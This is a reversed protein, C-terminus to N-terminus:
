FHVPSPIDDEDMGTNIIEVSTDVSLKIFIFDTSSCSHTFAINRTKNRDRKEDRNDTSYFKQTKKHVVHASINTMCHKAIQLEM